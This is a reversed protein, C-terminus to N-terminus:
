KLYIKKQLRKFNATIFFDILIYTKKQIRTDEQEVKKKVFFNFYINSTKKKLHNLNV